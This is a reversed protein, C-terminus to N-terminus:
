IRENTLWVFLRHLAIAVVSRTNILADDNTTPSSSTVVFILTLLASILMLHRLTVAMGLCMSGAMTCTTKSGRLSARNGGCCYVVSINCRSLVNAQSVFLRSFLILFIVIAASCARRQARPRNSQYNHYHFFAIITRDCCQM